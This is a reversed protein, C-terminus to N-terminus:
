WNARPSTELLPRTKYCGIRSICQRQRPRRELPNRFDFQKRPLFVTYFDIQGFYLLYQWPITAVLLHCQRIIRMKILQWQSSGQNWYFFRIRKLKCEDYSVSIARSIPYISEAVLINYFFHAFFFSQDSFIYM